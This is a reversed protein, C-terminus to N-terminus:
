TVCTEYAVCSQLPADTPVDTKEGVVQAPVPGFRDCSVSQVGVPHDYAMKEDEAV